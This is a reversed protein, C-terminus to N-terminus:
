ASADEKDFFLQVAMKGGSGAEIEVKKPALMEFLKLALEVQKPTMSKQNPDLFYKRLRRGLAEMGCIKEGSATPIEETFVELLNDRLRNREHWRKIGARKAAPTPQNTKSFRHEKPPIIGGRGAREAM